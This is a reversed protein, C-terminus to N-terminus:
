VVRCLCHFQNCGYLTGAGSLYGTQRYLKHPEEVPSNCHMHLLVLALHTSFGISPRVQTDYLIRNNTNCIRRTHTSSLSIISVFPLLKAYSDCRIPLPHLHVRIKVRIQQKHTRQKQHKCGATTNACQYPREAKLTAADAVPPERSQPITAGIGAM